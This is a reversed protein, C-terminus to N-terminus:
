ADALRSFLQGWTDTMIPVLDLDLVMDEMAKAEADHHDALERTAATSRLVPYLERIEGREHSLLQARITPWLAVRQAPNKQVSALLASIQAHEECLTQFVGTLGERRKVKVKGNTATNDNSSAMM